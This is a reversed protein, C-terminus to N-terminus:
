TDQLWKRELVLSDVGGYSIRDGNDSFGARRYFSMGRQNRGDVELRCQDTQPFARRIAAILQLGIGARQRDPRVYLRDLWLLGEGRDTASATGVVDGDLDAVLFAHDARGLGTALNPLAHWDATIATVQEVGYIADYTDHWTEVLLDRVASLDDARAPRILLM